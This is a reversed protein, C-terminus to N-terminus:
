FELKNMSGQGEAQDYAKTPGVLTVKDCLSLMLFDIRCLQHLFYTEVTNLLWGLELLM